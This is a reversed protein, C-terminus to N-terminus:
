KGRGDKSDGQKRSDGGKNDKGGDKGDKGKKKDGGKKGGWKEMKELEQLPWALAMANGLEQQGYSNMEIKISNILTQATTLKIPDTSTKLVDYAKNYSLWALIGYIASLLPLGLFVGYGWIAESAPLDEVFAEAVMAAFALAWITFGGYLFINNGIEWYNTENNNLKGNEYYSSLSRYKFAEMGHYVSNGFAVMLLTFWIWFEVEEQYESMEREYDDWDGYDGKDGGPPGEPKKGSERGTDPAQGRDPREMAEMDQDEDIGLDDNPGPGIQQM